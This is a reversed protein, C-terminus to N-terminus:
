KTKHKCLLFSRGVYNIACIHLGMSRELVQNSYYFCVDKYCQMFYQSSGLVLLIKAFCCNKLLKRGLFMSRNDKGHQLPKMSWPHVMFICPGGRANCLQM